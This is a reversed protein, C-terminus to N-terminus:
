PARCSICDREAMRFIIDFPLLLHSGCKPCGAKKLVFTGNRAYWSGFPQFLRFGAIDDSVENVLEPIVSPQSLYKTLYHIIASKPLRKIYVGKGSSVKKWIDLLEYFNMFKAELVAHIHAHWDGQSGTVELVFAGGSVNRKWFARNRLKRFSKVLDQLMDDLHPQNKITLTLFKVGYGKDLKILNVLWQLRQRVRNLRPKSCVPCFRNGCYVPVSIEHQCDLCVISRFEHEFDDM